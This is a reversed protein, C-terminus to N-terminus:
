IDVFVHFIQHDTPLTPMFIQKCELWTPNDRALPCDKADLGPATDTMKLYTAMFHVSHETLMPAVVTITLLHSGQALPVLAPCYKLFIEFLITHKM